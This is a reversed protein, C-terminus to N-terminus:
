NSSIHAETVAVLRKLGGDVIANRPAGPRMLVVLTIREDVAGVSNEATVVYNGANESEASPITLTRMRSKEDVVVKIRKTEKLSDGSLTWILILKPGGTYKATLEVKKAPQTELKPKDM